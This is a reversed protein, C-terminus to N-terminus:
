FYVLSFGASDMKLSWKCRDQNNHELERLSMGRASWRYTDIAATRPATPGDM